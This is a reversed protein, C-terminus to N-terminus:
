RSMYHLTNTHTRTCSNYYILVSAIIHSIGCVFCLFFCYSKYAKRIEIARANRIDFIYYHSTYILLCIDIQISFRLRVARTTNKLKKKRESTFFTPETDTIPLTYTHPRDRNKHINYSGRRYHNQYYLSVRRSQRTHRHIYIIQNTRHKKHSFIGIM